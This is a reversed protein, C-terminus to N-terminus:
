TARRYPGATPFQESQASQPQAVPNRKAFSPANRLWRHFALDADSRDEKFEWEQFKAVELELDVGLAEAKARHAANPQWDKPVVRWGRPRAAKPPKPREDTSPAPAASVLEENSGEKTGKPSRVDPTGQGETLPQSVTPCPHGQTLPSGADPTNTQSRLKDVSIRYSSPRGPSRLIEVVGMAELEAIVRFVERESVKARAAIRPVSPRCDPMHDILVILVSQQALALRSEFVARFAELFNM